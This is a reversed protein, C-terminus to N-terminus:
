RGIKRLVFSHPKPPDKEEQWTGRIEKGCSGEVLDGTWVASIRTGDASEEMTFEGKDVDGALQSREGNRNVSGTLRGEDELEFDSRRLLETVTHGALFEPTVRKRTAEWTVAKAGNECFQFTSTHKADPWACGPCDFGEPKNTRLLTLSADAVDMQERVVEAVARLADWGGAPHHYPRM